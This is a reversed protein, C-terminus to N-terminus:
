RDFAEACAKLQEIVDIHQPCAAECQGCAICDCAKGGKRSAFGYSSRAKELNGFVLLQNMAGFVGPINIQQPCDKVCYQCRTCPIRDIANMREVVEAVAAYEAENLPQFERMTNLNDKM